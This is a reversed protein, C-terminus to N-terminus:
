VIFLTKINKLELIGYFHETHASSQLNIKVPRHTGAEFKLNVRMDNVWTDTEDCFTGVLWWNEDIATWRESRWTWVGDFKTLAWLWQRRNWRLKTSDKMLSPTTKECIESHSRIGSKVSKQVASEVAFSVYGVWNIVKARVLNVTVKCNSWQTRLRLQQQSHSLIKRNWNNMKLKVCLSISCKETEITWKWNECVLHDLMSQLSEFM